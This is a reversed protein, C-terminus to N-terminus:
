KGQALAKNRLERRDAELGALRENLLRYNENLLRYNERHAADAVSEGKAKVADEYDKIRKEQVTIKGKVERLDEESLSMLTYNQTNFIM